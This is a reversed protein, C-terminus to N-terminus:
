PESAKALYGLDIGMGSLSRYALHVAAEHDIGETAKGHGQM